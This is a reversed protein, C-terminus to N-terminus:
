ILYYFGSSVGSCLRGNLCRGGNPPPATRADRARAVPPAIAGGKTTPVDDATPARAGAHRCLLAAAGACQQTRRKGATRRPQGGASRRQFGAAFGGRAIACGTARGRAERTQERERRGRRAPQTARHPCPPEPAARAARARAPAEMGGCPKGNGSGPKRAAGYRSIIAYFGRPM